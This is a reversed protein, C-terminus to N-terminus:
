GNSDVKEPWNQANSFFKINKEAKPIWCPACCKVKLLKSQGKCGWLGGLAPAQPWLSLSVWLSSRLASLKSCYIQIMLCKLLSCIDQAFPCIRASLSNSVFSSHLGSSCSLLQTRNGVADQAKHSLPWKATNFVGGVEGEWKIKKRRTYSKVFWFLKM